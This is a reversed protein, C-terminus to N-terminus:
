KLVFIQYSPQKELEETAAVARAMWLSILGDIRGTSKSRDIKRNGAPDSAVVANAACMKLVPHGGHAIKGGVLDSELQRLAPSSSAYGQGIPVFREEIEQEDFGVNLLWKRFHVWAWRDFGVKRIDLGDFVGRLHEAIYEYDVSKGPTTQLYGQKHWLDYPVRDKRARELLGEEPLWFTPRVHWKGDKPAILVMATLDTTASLDLGGYVPLGRFDEIPPEACGNWVSASVFPNTRTVRQNLVLQRYEAERSPMRKADNAMALVEDANQFDGFAPNASKITEIDFPDADPDSTWLFLRVRPDNGAKADDILVSLLDADTPASTSIIISLPDEQAGTATELAEYLESRPGKVQGLEDHIILSPSLGFATSAEASLARYQTGLDKCYLQKARDRIGVVASLDPDMRVMKAALAFLISAQDLSQAASFLQSNRRFEPGCLHLLALM